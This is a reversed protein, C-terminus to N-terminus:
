QNGVAGEDKASGPTEGFHGPQVRIPFNSTGATSFMESPRLSYEVPVKKVWAV